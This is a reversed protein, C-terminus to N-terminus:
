KNFLNYISSLVNKLRKLERYLIINLKFKTRAVYLVRIFNSNFSFYAILNDYARLVSKNNTVIDKGAWTSVESIRHVAMIQPIYLFNGFQALYLNLPWDGLRLKDFLMHDIELNNCRFMLSCTPILNKKALDNFNIEISSNFDCYLYSKRYIDEQYREETNHFCGILDDRKELINWQKFLKYRDTWYDDGECMAIYKGNCIKIANLLNPIMGINVDNRIYRIKSSNPNKDIIEDVINKTNDPSRDDMILLEFPVDIQQFLVGEIAERIYNEHGYTMMIVSIM